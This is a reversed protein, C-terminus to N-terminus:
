IPLISKIKIVFGVHLPEACFFGAKYEPMSLERQVFEDSGAADGANMVLSRPTSNGGQLLKQESAAAFSPSPPLMGRPCM